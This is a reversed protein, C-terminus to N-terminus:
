QCAAPKEDFMGASLSTDGFRNDADVLGTCM